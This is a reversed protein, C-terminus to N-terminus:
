KSEDEQSSNQTSQQTLYTNLVRPTSCSSTDPEEKVVVSGDTKAKDVCLETSSISIVTVDIEVDHSTDSKSATELLGGINNEKITPSLKGKVNLEEKESKVIDKSAKHRVHKRLVKKRSQPPKAGIDNDMDSTSPTTSNEVRSTEFGNDDMTNPASDTTDSTSNSEQPDFYNDFFKNCTM